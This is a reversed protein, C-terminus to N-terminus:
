RTLLFVELHTAARIKTIGLGASQLDSDLSFVAVVEGVGQIIGHDSRRAHQNGEQLVIKAGVAAHGDRFGQLGIHASFSFNSSKKSNAKLM